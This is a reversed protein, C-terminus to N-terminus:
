ASRRNNAQQKPTAWRCNVPEYNGDNDIRDISHGKPRPGMDALFNSFTRWRECVTVGHNGYWRKFDPNNPNLCRSTMNVWSSYEPSHGKRSHGHITVTDRQLCRCSRTHGSRLQSGIVDTENGCECRCHWLAQGFSTGIRKIAVLRGFRQETIDIFAPMTVESGPQRSTSVSRKARETEACALMPHIFQFRVTLPVRAM